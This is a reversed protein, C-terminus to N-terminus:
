CHRGASILQAWSPRQLPASVPQADKVNGALVHRYRSSSPLPPRGREERRKALYTDQDNPHPLKELVLLRALGLVRSFSRRTFPRTSEHDNSRQGISKLVVIRISPCGIRM